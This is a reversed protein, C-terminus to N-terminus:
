FFFNSVPKRNFKKKTNKPNIYFVRVSVWISSSDVAWVLVINRNVWVLGFIAPFVWPCSLGLHPSFVRSVLVSTGGGSQCSSSGQLFVGPARVGVM